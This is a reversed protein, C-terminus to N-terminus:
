GRDEEEGGDERVEEIAERGLCGLEQSLGDPFSNFGRGRRSLLLSNREGRKVSGKRFLVIEIDGRNTDVTENM